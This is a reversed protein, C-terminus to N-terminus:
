SQLRGLQRTLESMNNTIILFGVVVLLVGSAIEITRYHNRIRAVFGLLQNMFIGALLFPIGLGACYILMMGVASFATTSDLAKTMAAGLFPGVCPTWGGAFAAGVLFAGAMGAPKNSKNFHFRKEMNLFGLKFLGIFHLGMVIVALGAGVQIWTKIDAGLFDAIVLVLGFILIFVTTFGAIFFLTATVVRGIDNRTIGAPKDAGDSTAAKAVSVGSIFSLYAPVLPLVCPSGFSLLGEVFTAAFDVSSVQTFATSLGSLMAELM